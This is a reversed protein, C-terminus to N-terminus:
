ATVEQLGDAGFYLQLNTIAQGSKGSFDFAVNHSFGQIGYQGNYKSELSEIEYVHGVAVQPEFLTLVELLTERRRPTGLLDGPDLKIVAGSIVEGPSLVNVVALDVFYNDDTLESLIKTTQGLLVTGRPAGEGQAPAGMAGAIMDPLTKIARLIINEKQTDKQITESMFGNQIAHIGDFCDIKTIWESGQKYSLAEYINGEFMKHLRNGYGGYLILEWKSVLDYRDKFIQNRTNEGLNYITFNGKNASALTNRTINAILTFPPEITIQKGEPTIVDLKYNRQVKAM